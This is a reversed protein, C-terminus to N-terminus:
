TTIKELDNKNGILFIKKGRLVDQLFVSKKKISKILDKKTFIVYNIERSLKAEAKRVVRILSNEDISGIILIDIDSLSDERGRAFSGYMFAIKIEKIKSLEKQLIAEVGVTKSIISKLEKYLPYDKSLKFFRSNAQYYSKLIGKTVLTNIDRQFVGPEKGLLRGIQRLYYSKESDNFFAKLILIQNKTFHLAM